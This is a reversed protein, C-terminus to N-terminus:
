ETAVKSEAKLPRLCLIIGGSVILSVSMLLFGARSNHTVAQLLGVMWSGAFAGLAGFSNVLALVEGAVNRPLMEPIIAWFPGYPAYM